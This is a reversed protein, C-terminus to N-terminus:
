ILATSDAFQTLPAEACCASPDAQNAWYSM